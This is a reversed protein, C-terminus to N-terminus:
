SSSNMFETVFQDLVGRSAMFLDKFTESPIISTKNNRIFEWCVETLKMHQCLDALKLFEVVNSSNVNRVLYYLCSESLCLIGFKHADSFVKYAIPVESLIECEGKYMYKLVITMTEGDVDEVIMCALGDGDHMSHQLMDNFVTGYARLILTHGNIHGRGVISKVDSYSSSMLFSGVPHGFPEPPDPIDGPDPIPWTIACEIRILGIPLEYWCNPFKQIHRWEAAHSNQLSNGEVKLVLSAEIPNGNTKHVSIETFTNHGRQTFALRLYLSCNDMIGAPIRQSEIVTIKDSTKNLVTWRYSVERVPM